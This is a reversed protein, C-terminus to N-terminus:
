HADLKGLEELVALLLSQGEASMGKALKDADREGDVLRRILGGMRGMDGGVRTMQEAMGSLLQLAQVDGRSSAHIMAALGPAALVPDAKASPDPLTIPDQIGRLIAEVIVSDEEDLSALLNLGREGGLIRRIAAVLEGWGNEASVRLVEELPARLSPNQVAKVVNVILAAHTQVIQEHRTPLQSM